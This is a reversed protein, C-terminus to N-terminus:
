VQVYVGMADKVKRVTDESIPLVHERGHKLVGDLYLPDATIERYRRQIPELRAIVAEAV